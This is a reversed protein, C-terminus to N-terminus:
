VPVYFVDEVIYGVTDLGKGWSSTLNVGALMHCVSTGAGCDCKLLVGESSERYQTGVSYHSGHFLDVCESSSM